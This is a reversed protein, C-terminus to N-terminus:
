WDNPDIQECDAEIAAMMLEADESSLVGAFDLLQDGPIGRPRTQTLTHAYEVVKRQLLPPLQEVEKLLDSQIAADLM